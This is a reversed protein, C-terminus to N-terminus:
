ATCVTFTPLKTKTDGDIGPIAKISVAYVAATMTGDANFTNCSGGARGHRAATRKIAVAPSEPSDAEGARSM